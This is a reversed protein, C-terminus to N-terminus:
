CPSPWPSSAAWWGSRCCIAWPAASGFIKFYNGLGYFSWDATTATVSEVQFFSMIVTRCVPYVFMIVLALLAPLCFWFIMAKNKRM